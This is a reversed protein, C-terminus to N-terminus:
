EGSRGAAADLPMKGTLEVAFLLRASRTEIDSWPLVPVKELRQRLGNLRMETFPPRRIWDLPRQEDGPNQIRSHFRAKLAAFRHVCRLQVDIVGRAIVSLHALHSLAPSDDGFVYGFRFADLHPALWSCGAQSAGRM